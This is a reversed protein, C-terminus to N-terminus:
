MKCCFLYGDPSVANVAAAVFVTFSEACYGGNAKSSYLAPIKRRAASFYRTAFVPQAFIRRM